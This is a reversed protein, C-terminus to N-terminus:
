GLLVIIREIYIDTDTMLEAASSWAGMLFLVAVLGQAEMCKRYFFEQEGNM